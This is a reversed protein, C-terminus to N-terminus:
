SNSVLTEEKLLDINTFEDHLVGYLKSKMMIKTAWYLHPKIENMKNSFESKLVGIEGSASEIITKADTYEEFSIVNLAQVAKIHTPHIVTKGTLGNAIDMIVEQMLGDMHCDILENRFKLGEQGYRQRFPTQRLQPKLIREKSSFYEWVPGSIVYPSEARLFVNIIDSICDRIVSIEYVTTDAGRRIGYLGSFDTAGIRVNLVYDRYEDLVEKIEMLETIRTEKQIVRNTELIPMAYFPCGNHSLKRVAKLLERGTIAEFKPLVVGTLINIADGLQETVKLFQEHHRIRIFILPLDEKQVTGNLTASYLKYLEEILNEEASAVETDGVADELDIVLSTLGKHKGTIIDSHIGLKTGPMYLTAGLAYALLERDTYKNFNSPKQYFIQDMEEEPIYSFFKM